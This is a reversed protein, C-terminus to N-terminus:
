AKNGLWGRIKMAEYIRKIAVMYAAGRMNIDGREKYLTYVSDFAEVMKRELRENVEEETWYYGYQNQVWEFYSVTVGGANALVDPLVLINRKALIDDAEPTTPGNAGEAV